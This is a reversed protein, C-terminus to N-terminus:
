VACGGEIEKGVLQIEEYAEVWGGWGLFRWAGNFTRVAQRRGDPLDPYFRDYGRRRAVVILANDVDALEPFCWERERATLMAQTELPLAPRKQM